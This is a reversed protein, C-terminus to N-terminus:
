RIRRTQSKRIAVFNRPIVSKTVELKEVVVVDEDEPEPSPPRTTDGRHFSPQPADNLSSPRGFGSLHYHIM